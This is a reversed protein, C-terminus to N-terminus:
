EHNSREAAYRQRVIETFQMVEDTQPNLNNIDYFENLYLSAERWHLTANLTAVIADYYAADNGFLENIFLERLESSIISHLEPLVPATTKDALGAFTLSLALNRRSGPNIQPIEEAGGPPSATGTVSSEDASSADSHLEVTSENAQTTTTIVETADAPVPPMDDLIERLEALSIEATSRVHCINEIYEKIRHESKDSFFVLIPKIPIRDSTSSHTLSLFRFVPATLEALERGTHQQVYHRDIKNLLSQFQELDVRSWGKRELIGKILTKYHPYDDLYELKSLIHDGGLTTERGFVFETLTWQPRCLYNTLFHVGNDLTALFENRPFIYESACVRLFVERARHVRSTSMNVRAFHLSPEIDQQLWRMAECRFYSKIGDPIDSALTQGLTFHTQTGITREALRAIIIDIEQELM